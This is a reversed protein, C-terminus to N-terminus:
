TAQRRYYNIIIRSVSDIVKQIEEPDKKACDDMIRISGSGCKIEKVQM